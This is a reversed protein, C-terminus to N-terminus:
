RQIRARVAAKYEESNKDVGRWDGKMERCGRMYSDDKMLMYPDYYRASMRIEYTGLQAGSDGNTLESSIYTVCSALAPVGRFQDMCPKDVRSMAKNRNMFAGVFGDILDLAGDTKDSAGKPDSITFDDCESPQGDNMSAISATRRVSPASAQTGPDEKARALSAEDARSCAGLVGVLFGVLVLRALGRSPYGQIQIGSM